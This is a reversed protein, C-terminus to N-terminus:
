MGLDSNEIDVSSEWELLQINQMATLVEVATSKGVGPPGTILLM